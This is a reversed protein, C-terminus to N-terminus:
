DDCGGGEDTEKREGEEKVGRWREDEMGREGFVFRCTDCWGLMGVLTTVPGPCPRPIDPDMWKACCDAVPRDPTQSTVWTAHRTALLHLRACSLPAATLSHGCTYHHATTYCM